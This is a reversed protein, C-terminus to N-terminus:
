ILPVRIMFKERSRGIEDRKKDDFERSRTWRALSGMRHLVHRQSNKPIAPSIAQSSIALIKSLM